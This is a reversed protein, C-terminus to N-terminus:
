SASGQRRHKREAVAAAFGNLGIITRDRLKAITPQAERRLRHYTDRGSARQMVVEVVDHVGGLDIDWAGMGATAVMNKGREDYSLHVTHVGFALCPLFAHLRYSVNLRCRRLAAIYRQVDDFYFAQTDPFAAAFELDKYDHCVLAVVDGYERRLAAILRRIDDAIRWQLIPPVSMRGPHRISILVRGDCGADVANASLFLSPCGTVEVGSVGLEGLLECSANDRVMRFGAKEGILRVLHAPLSDTRRTLAYTEDYIRGHSLGILMLPVSLADLAHSEVSLQGNEFLNGGGIVVGDAFRNMDYVQNTTMGGYQQERLAPINIISVTSGFVEYLLDTTAKNILDNGINRTTPRVCFLNTM